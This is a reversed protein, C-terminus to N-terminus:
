IYPVIIVKNHLISSEIKASVKFTKRRFFKFSVKIEQVVTSVISPFHWKFLFTTHSNSFFIFEGVLYKHCLSLVFYKSLCGKESSFILIIDRSLTGLFISVIDVYNLVVIGTSLECPPPSTPSAPPM